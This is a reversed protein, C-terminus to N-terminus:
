SKMTNLKWKADTQEFNLGSHVVKWIKDKDEKLNKQECFVKKKKTLSVGFYAPTNWVQYANDAKDLKEFHLLM